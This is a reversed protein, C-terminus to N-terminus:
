CLELNRLLLIEERDMVLAVYGKADAYVPTRSKHQSKILLTSNTSFEFIIQQLTSLKNNYRPGQVLITTDITKYKNMKPEEKYESHYPINKIVNDIITKVYILKNNKVNQMVFDLDESFRDSYYFKSFATGGKFVFENASSSYISYFM